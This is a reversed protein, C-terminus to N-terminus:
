EANREDGCVPEEQLVFIFLLNELNELSGTEDVINQEDETDQYWGLMALHHSCNVNLPKEFFFANGEGGAWEWGNKQLERSYDSDWDKGNVGESAAPYEICGYTALGDFTDGLSGCNEAKKSGAIIPVDLLGNKLVLRDKVPIQSSGSCASLILSISFSLAGYICSTKRM